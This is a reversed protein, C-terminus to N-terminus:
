SMLAYSAPDPDLSWPLLPAGNSFTLAPDASQGLIEANPLQFAHGYYIRAATSQQKHNSGAADAFVQTGEVGATFFVLQDARIIADPPLNPNLLPSFNVDNPVAVCRIAFFGGPALRALDSRIQREIAATEQLVDRTAQGIGTVKSITGFIKAAALIVVVLVAVAIM